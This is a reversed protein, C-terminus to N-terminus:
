HRTNGGVRLNANREGIAAADRPRVWQEYNRREPEAQVELVLFDEDGDCDYGKVIAERGITHIRVDATHLIKVRQSIHFETM